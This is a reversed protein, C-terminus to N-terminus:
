KIVCGVIDEQKIECRVSDGELIGRCLEAFSSSKAEFKEVLLDIAERPDISNGCTFIDVSAYGYEPWTHVCLHSEAVVVVGSVGYPSFQYFAKNVVTAGIEEATECLCNELYDLDNLVELNCDKLELLIHRGLANL